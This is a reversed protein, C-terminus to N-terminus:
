PVFNRQANYRVRVKDWLSSNPGTIGDPGSIGAIGRTADLKQGPLFQRLDVPNGNKDVTMYPNRGNGNGAAGNKGDAWGSGGAGGWGGAGGRGGNWGNLIGANLGTGGGAGKQAGAPGGGGAGGNGGGGHGAGGKGLSLNAKGEGPKGEFPFGYQEPTEGGGPVIKGGAGNGFGSMDASSNPDIANNNNALGGM